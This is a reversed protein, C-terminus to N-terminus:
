HDISDIQAMKTIGTHELRRSHEPTRETQIAVVETESLFFSNHVGASFVCLISFLCSLIPLTKEPHRDAV